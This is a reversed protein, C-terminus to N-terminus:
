SSWLHAAGDDISPDNPANSFHIIVGCVCLLDIIPAYWNIVISYAIWM